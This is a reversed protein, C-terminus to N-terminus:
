RPTLDVGEQPPPSNQWYKYLLMATMADEISDHAGRQIDRNLIAAALRKLSPRENARFFSRFCESTDRLQINPLNKIDLVTLDQVLDHGILIRGSIIDVVCDRVDKFRPADELHERRIGSYPTRYDSVRYMPKVYTDLILQCYSNVLSVRALVSIKKGDKTAEVMECDIAIESTVPSATRRLMNDHSQDQHYTGPHHRHSMESPNVYPYVLKADPLHDFSPKLTFSYIFLQSHCRGIPTTPLIYTIYPHYHCTFVRAVVFSARIAM